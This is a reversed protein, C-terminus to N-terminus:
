FLWMGLRRLSRAGARDHRLRMGHKSRFGVKREVIPTLLNTLLFGPSIANVRIDHTRAELAAQRHTLSLSLTITLSPHSPLLSSVTKTIGMVVHKSTTYAISGAISMQSNLSACNVIAGRQPVRGEESAPDIIILLTNTQSLPTSAYVSISDQKMM